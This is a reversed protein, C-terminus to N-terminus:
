FQMATINEYDDCVDGDRFWVVFFDLKFELNQEVSWEKATSTDLVPV